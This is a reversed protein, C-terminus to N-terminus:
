AIQAAGMRVACIEGIVCSSLKKIEREHMM